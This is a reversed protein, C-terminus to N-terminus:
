RRRIVPQVMQQIDQWRVEANAPVPIPNLIAAPEHQDDDFDDVIPQYAQRRPALGYKKLLNENWKQWDDRAYCLRLLIDANEELLEDNKVSMLMELSKQNHGVCKSLFAESSERFYTDMMNEPSNFTRNHVVHYCLSSWNDIREVDTTGEMGRFELSGFSTICALNVASYKSLDPNLNHIASFDKAMDVGCKVQAEADAVTLCYQNGKRHAGCLRIMTTDLMWATSISTMLGLMDFPLINVHIHVSTRPCDPIIPKNEIIKGFAELVKTKRDMAIPKKTVFEIGFNRLSGDNKVTWASNAPIEFNTPDPTEAEIEIGIDGIANLGLYNKLM